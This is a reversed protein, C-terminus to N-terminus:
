LADRIGDYHQVLFVLDSERVLLDFIEEAIFKLFDDTSSDISEKTLNEVRPM